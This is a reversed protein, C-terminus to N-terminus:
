RTAQLSVTTHTGRPTISLLWHDEGHTLDYSCIPGGAFCETYAVGLESMRALIADRISVGDGDLNVVVTTPTAGVPLGGYLALADPAWLRAEDFDGDLPLTAGEMTGPISGEAEAFTFTLVDEQLVLDVYGEDADFPDFAHADFAVGAAVATGGFLLASAVLASLVKHLRM